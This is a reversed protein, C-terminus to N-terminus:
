INNTSYYALVLFALTVAIGALFMNATIGVSYPCQFEVLHPDTRENSHLVSEPMRVSVVALIIGLITMFIGIALFTTFISPHLGLICMWTYGAGFSWLLLLDLYLTRKDRINESLPQKVSFYTYHQLKYALLIGASIMALTIALTLLM